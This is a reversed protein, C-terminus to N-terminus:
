RFWRLIYIEGFGKISDQYVVRYNYNELGQIIDDLSILKLWEDNFKFVAVRDLNIFTNTVSILVSKGQVVIIVYRRNMDNIRRITKSIERESM